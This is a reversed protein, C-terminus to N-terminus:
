EAIPTNRQQASKAHLLSIQANILTRTMQIEGKASLRVRGTHQKVAGGTVDVLGADALVAVWRWGTTAAAGSFKCLEEVTLARDWMSYKFLILLMDWAPGSVLARGLVRTREKRLDLFKEAIEYLSATTKPWFLRPESSPTSSSSSTARLDKAFSILYCALADAEEAYTLLDDSNM